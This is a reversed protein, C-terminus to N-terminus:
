EVRWIGAIASHRRWRRRDSTREMQGSQGNCAFVINVFFYCMFGISFCFDDDCLRSKMVFNAVIKHGCKYRINCQQQISTAPLKTTGYAIVDRSCISPGPSSQAFSVGSAYSADNWPIHKLIQFCALFFISLTKSLHYCVLHIMRSSM